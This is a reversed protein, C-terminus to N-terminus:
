TKEGEAKHIAACAKVGGLVVHRDLYTKPVARDPFMEGHMRKFDADAALATPEEAFVGLAVRDTKLVHVYLCDDKM